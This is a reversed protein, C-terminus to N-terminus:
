RRRRRRGRGRGDPDSRAAGAAVAGRGGRAEKFALVAQDLRSRAADLDSQVGSATLHKRAVHQDRLYLALYLRGLEFYAGALNKVRDIAREMEELAGELDGRRFLVLGRYFRAWATEPREALIGDLRGCISDLKEFSRSLSGSVRYLNSDWSAIERVIDCGQTWDADRDATAPRGSWPACRM